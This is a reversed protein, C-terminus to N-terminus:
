LFFNTTKQSPYKKANKKEINETTPPIVGTTLAKRIKIPWEEKAMDYDEQNYNPVDVRTFVLLVHKWMDKGFTIALAKLLVRTFGDFRINTVNLVILFVNVGKATKEFFDILKESFKRNM